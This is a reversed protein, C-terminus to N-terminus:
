ESGDSSASLDILVGHLVQDVQPAGWAWVTETGGNEQHTSVHVNIRAYGGTAVHKAPILIACRWNGDESSASFQWESMASDDAPVLPHHAEKLHGNEFAAYWYPSSEAPITYRDLWTLEVFPNSIAGQAALLVRLGTETRVVALKPSQARPWGLAKNDGIARWAADTAERNPALTNAGTSLAMVRVHGGAFAPFWPRIASLWAGDRPLLENHLLPMALPAEELAHLFATDTEEERVLTVPVTWRMAEMESVFELTLSLVRGGDLWQGTGSVRGHWCSTATESAYGGWQGSATVRPGDGPALDMRVIRGAWQGLANVMGGDETSLLLWHGPSEEADSDGMSYVQAREPGEFRLGDLLVQATPVATVGLESQVPYTAETSTPPADGRPYAPTTDPMLLWAALVIILAAWGLWPLARRLKDKAWDFSDRAPPAWDVRIRTTPEEDEGRRNYEPVQELCELVAQADHSRQSADKELLGAVLASLEPSVGPQREHLPVVPKNNLEKLYALPSQASYLPEGSLGEYLMVGASYLDWAPTPEAGEWAEPPAYRPTGVFVGLSTAESVSMAMHADALKALGFDALMARGDLDLLVNTPKVDRHVMGKGHCYALARLVDAACRTFDAPFLGKTAIVRDLSGAELFPMEILLRGEVVHFGNIPVINPHFLRAVAKAENEFRRVFEASLGLSEHLMKLAVRRELTTDEALYVVGMGGRGLERVVRYKGVRKGSTMTGSLRGLVWFSGEVAGVSRNVAAEYMGVAYPRRCYQRTGSVHAAPSPQM